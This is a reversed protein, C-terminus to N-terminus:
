TASVFTATASTPASTSHLPTYCLKLIRLISRVYRNWTSQLKERPSKTAAGPCTHGHQSSIHSFSVAQQRFRFIFTFYSVSFCNILNFVLSLVLSLLSAFPAVLPTLKNAPLIIIIVAAASILYAFFSSWFLQVYVM